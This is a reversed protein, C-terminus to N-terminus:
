HVCFVGTFLGVEANAHSRPKPKLPPSPKDNKKVHDNPPFNEYGQHTRPPAVPSVKEGEGEGEEEPQPSLKIKKSSSTNRPLPVPTGSTTVNEYNVSDDDGQPAILPFNCQFGRM